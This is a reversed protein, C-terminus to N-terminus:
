PLILQSTDPSLFHVAYYIELSESGAAGTNTTINVKFSSDGNDTFTFTSAAIGDSGQQTPTTEYSSVNCTLAGGGDRKICNFHARGTVSQVSDDADLVDPTDPDYYAFIAYDIVGAKMKWGNVSPISHNGSFLSATVGTTFLETPTNEVLVKKMGGSTYGQDMVLEASYASSISPKTTQFYAASAGDSSEMFLNGDYNLQNSGINIDALIIAPTGYADLFTLGYHADSDVYLSYYDTPYLPDIFRLVEQAPEVPYLTLVPAGVASPTISLTTLFPNTFSGGGGCGTCVGTVVISDFV